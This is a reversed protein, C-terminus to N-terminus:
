STAADVEKRKILWVLPAAPDFESWKVGFNYRYPKAHHNNHYCQGFTLLGFFRSNTSDDKTEFNRYGFGKLHGFINTIPEQHTSWMMPLILGFLTVYLTQNVLFDIAAFVVITGWIIKYYNNHMWKQFSDRILHRAFKMPVDRPNLNVIWGWYSHWYGSHHGHPDNETDSARHHQLHTATWFIPSGQSGLCALWGLMYHFPKYTKFSNHSFYRHHGIAVGFGSIMVWGVLFYIMYEISFFPIALLSLLHLPLIVKRFHESLQM